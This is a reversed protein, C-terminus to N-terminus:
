TELRAIGQLLYDPDLSSLFRFWESHFFRECERKTILAPEYKRNRKLQKLAKRYDSVAQLVIANALNMYPDDM